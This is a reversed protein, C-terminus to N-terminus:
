FNRGGTTPHQLEIDDIGKELNRNILNALKNAVHGGKIIKKSIRLSRKKSNRKKTHNLGTTRQKRVVNASTSHAKKLVRKTQRMYLINM